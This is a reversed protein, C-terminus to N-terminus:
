FKFQSTGTISADDPTDTGENSRATYDLGLTVNENAMYETGLQIASRGTNSSGTFTRSISSYRVALLWQKTVDYTGELLLIPITNDATMAAATLYTGYAVNNTYGNPLSASIYEGSLNFAGFNAKGFLDFAASNKGSVKDDGNTYYALGVQLAKSVDYTAQLGYSLADKTSGPTTGTTSTFSNAGNGQVAYFNYALSGAAGSYMLGTEYGPLFGGSGIIFGLQDQRQFKNWSSYASNPIYYGFPVTFRGMKLGGFAVNFENFAYTGAAGNLQLESYFHTDKAIDANFYLSDNFLSPVGATGL